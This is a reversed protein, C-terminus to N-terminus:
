WHDNLFVGINRLKKKSVSYLELHQARGQSIGEMMESSKNLTKFTVEDDDGDDDDGCNSNDNEFFVNAKSTIIPQASTVKYKTVM